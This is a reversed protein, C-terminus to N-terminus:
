LFILRAYRDSSSYDSTATMGFLGLYNSYTSSSSGAYNATMCNYFYSDAFLETRDGYYLSNNNNTMKKPYFLYSGIGQIDDLRGNASSSSDLPTSYTTLSTPTLNDKAIKVSSVGLEVGDIWTYGNGYIDALGFLKAFYYSSNSGNKGSTMGCTTLSSHNSGWYSYYGKGCVSQANLTKYRLLFLIKIMSWTHWTMLGWGAGKNKAYSRHNAINNYTTTCGAYSRAGSSPAYSRFAGVYLFDKDVGGTYHAYAEMNPRIKKNSIIIDIYNDNSESTWYIKPFEIMLDYSTGINSGDLFKSFDKKQAEGVIAGTKSNLAVPRISKFPEVEDWNTIESSKGIYEVALASDSVNRYIRVVYKYCNELQIIGEQSASDNTTGDSYTCVFKYNVKVGMDEIPVEINKDDGYDTINMVYDYDIVSPIRDYGIYLKVDAQPVRCNLIATFNEDNMRTSYIHVGSYHFLNEADKTVVADYHNCISPNSHKVWTYIKNPQKNKPVIKYRIDYEPANDPVLVLKGDKIQAMSRAAIGGNFLGVTVPTDITFFGDEISDIVVRAINQGNVLTVEQGVKLKALAEKDNTNIINSSNTTIELSTLDIQGLSQSNLGDFSDYYVNGSEFEQGSKDAVQQLEALKKAMDKPTNGSAGSGGGSKFLDVLGLSLDNLTTGM